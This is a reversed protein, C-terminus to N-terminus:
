GAIAIYGDLQKWVSIMVHDDGCAFSTVAVERAAPVGVTVELIEHPPNYIV